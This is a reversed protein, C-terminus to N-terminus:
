RSVYEKQLERPRIELPLGLVDVLRQLTDLTPNAEGNEILYIRNQSTGISLALERQSLGREMRKELVLMGLERRARNEEWVQRFEEDAALMHRLHAEGSEEVEPNIEEDTSNHGNYREV